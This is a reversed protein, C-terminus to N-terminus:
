SWVRSRRDESTSRSAKKEKESRDLLERFSEAAKSQAAVTSILSASLLLVILFMRGTTRAHQLM